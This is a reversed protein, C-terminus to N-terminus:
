SHSHMCLVACQGVQILSQLHKVLETEQEKDVKHQAANSDKDESRNPLILGSRDISVTRHDDDRDEQALIGGGSISQTGLM